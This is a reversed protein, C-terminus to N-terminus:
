NTLTLTTTTTTTTTTPTTTTTTTTKNLESLLQLYQPLDSTPKTKIHFYYSLSLPYAENDLILKYEEALNRTKKLDRFLAELIISYNKSLNYEILLSQRCHNYQLSPKFITISLTIEQKRIFQLMLDTNLHTFHIQKMMCKQVGDNNVTLILDDYQYITEVKLIPTQIPSIKQFTEVIKLFNAHDIKHSIIGDAIQQAPIILNIGSGYNANIITDM